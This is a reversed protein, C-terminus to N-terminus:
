KQRPELARRGVARAAFWCLEAWIVGLAWGALVDTPYHVGLYVRSLGVLFSLFLAAAFVYARHERKESIRSLLVAITLYVVASATAHGSPFSLSDIEIWRFTPDPRERGYAAKLVANLVQSGLAATILFLAAGFRRSLALFGTVLLTFTSLVVMSGLGTIDRAVDNLWTSGPLSVPDLRHMARMIAKEVPLHDGDSVEHAIFLFLWAAVVLIGLNVWVRPDKNRLFGRYRQLRLSV